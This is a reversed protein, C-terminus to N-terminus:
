WSVMGILMLITMFSIFPGDWKSNSLFILLVSVFAHDSNRMPPFAMASCTSTDSCQFLDLLAPSCSDCDPVRTPFNIMLTLYNSNSFNYGLEVTWDTGSSYTLWDKHRVNFHRWVFMLLRTSRSFRMYTLHFLNWFRAYLRLLHSISSFSTLCNNFYFWGFVCTIIRHTKYLCTGRSLFDKKVYLALAHM